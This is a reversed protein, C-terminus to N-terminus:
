QDPSWRSRCEKGVRREESRALKRGMALDPLFRAKQEDTGFMAIGKFGISQHVGMGITLSGDFQGIAEFVRAYGTQSLGQGGYEEPVYLGMLGLEGLDRYVQDEIWGERDIQRSDINEAAYDQFAAVLDRIRQEEEPDQRIPYPFVMDEHIEGLVLSKSFSSVATATESM